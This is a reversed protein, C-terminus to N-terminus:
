SRAGSELGNDEILKHYPTEKGVLSRAVFAM